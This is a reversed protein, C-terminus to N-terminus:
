DYQCKDCRKVYDQSDWAITPLYYGQLLARRSLTWGEKYSGFVGEHIEQLIYRVQTPHICRLYPITYGRRYFIGNIIHYKASRYKIRRADSKDTPVSGTTLYM